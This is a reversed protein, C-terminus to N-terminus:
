QPLCYLGKEKKVFGHALLLRGARGGLKRGFHRVLESFRLCGGNRKAIEVAAKVISSDSVVGVQQVLPPAPQPAPLEAGEELRAPILLTVYPRAHCGGSAEFVERVAAVAKELAELRGLLEGLKADIEAIRKELEMLKEISVKSPQEILRRILEDIPYDPRPLLRQLRYFL